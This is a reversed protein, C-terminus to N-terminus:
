QKEAVVDTTEDLQLAEKGILKESILGIFTLLIFTTIFIIAVLSVGHHQILDLHNILGTGAPVFCIGMHKILWNNTQSINEENLLKFQLFLCYFLMGYLSAPLIDVWAYFGKGLLLCLSISFM